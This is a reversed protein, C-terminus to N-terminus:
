VCQLCGDGNLSPVTGLPCVAPLEPREREEQQKVGATDVYKVSNHLLGHYCLGLKRGLFVFISGFSFFVLSMVSLFSSLLTIGYVQEHVGPLDGLEMCLFWLSQSSFQEKPGSGALLHLVCSVSRLLVEFHKFVSSVHVDRCLHCDSSVALIWTLYLGSSWSAICFM